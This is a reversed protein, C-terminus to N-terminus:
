DSLEEFNHEHIIHLNSIPLIKKPSSMFQRVTINITKRKTKTINKWAQFNVSCFPNNM